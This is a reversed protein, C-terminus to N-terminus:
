RSRAARCALCDCWPHPMPLSRRYAARQRWRPERMEPPGHLKPHLHHIRWHTAHSDWRGRGLGKASTSELLNFWIGGGCFRAVRGERTREADRGRKAAKRARKAQAKALHESM